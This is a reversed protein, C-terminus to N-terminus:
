HGFSTTCLRNYYEYPVCPGAGSMVKQLRSIVVRLECGEPVRAVALELKKDLEGHFQAAKAPVNELGM